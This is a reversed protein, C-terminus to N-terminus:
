ASRIAFLNSASVIGAWSSSSMSRSSTLHSDARIAAKALYPSSSKSATSLIRSGSLFYRAILFREETLRIIRNRHTLSKAPSLPVLCSPRSRMRAEKRRHDDHAVVALPGSAFSIVLDFMSVVSSGRFVDIPTISKHGEHHRESLAFRSSKIPADTSQVPRESLPM